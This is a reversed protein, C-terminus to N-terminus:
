KLVELQGALVIGNSINNILEPNKRKLREWEKSSFLFLSIRRNLRKEYKKINFAKKIDSLICIDIDSKEDDLAQAYSGFVVITPFDYIRELEEILGSKRIKELNYYLKLNLFKKNIKAKYTKFIKGKRAELLDDRALRSLYQRVSTHNIKLIRAIERIHFERNPNEFFPKLITLKKEM